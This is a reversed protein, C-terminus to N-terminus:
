SSARDETGSRVLRSLVAELETGAASWSFHQEVYSRADPQAAREHAAGNLHRVLCDAFHESRRAVELPPVSGGESKLGAAALPSVVSPVEMAMAELLKNQIGAGFRLPAAFVAAAELHPRMDDVFGTVTVGPQLDRRRLSEPPDRGVIRLRADPLARRVLPLIVDVLQMAADINPAYDMAGTFVIEGGLQRGSRRWYDLDVGNPVVVARWDAPTNRGMVARRDRPSGFMVAGAGAVVARERWLSLLFRFAIAPKHRRGAFTLSRRTHLSHADCLDYLIPLRSGRLVRFLPYARRGSLVLVDAAGAAFLGQVHAALRRTADDTMGLVRRAGFRPSGEAELRVTVFREMERVHEPEVPQGVLALLTVEHRQALERSLFYHRLKGSTLPYPLGSTVYLIRM